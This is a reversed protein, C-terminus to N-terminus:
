AADVQMAADYAPLRAIEPPLPAAALQDALWQGGAAYLVLVALAPLPAWWAALFGPSNPRSHLTRTNGGAAALAKQRGMFFAASAAVLLAALLALAARSHAIEVFM